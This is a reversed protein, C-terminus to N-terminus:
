AAALSWRDVTVAVARNLMEVNVVVRASDKVRVLIGTVGQLPGDTIRVQQGERLLDWPTVEGLESMRRVRAIESDDVIAPENAFMLLDYVHPAQLALTKETDPFRVFIYGPFLPKTVNEPKRHSLRRTFSYEPLFHEISRFGLHDRASFEWGTQVRLVRWPLDTYTPLFHHGLHLEATSTPFTAM